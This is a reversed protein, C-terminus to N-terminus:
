FTDESPQVVKIESSRYKSNDTPTLVISSKSMTQVAGFDGLPTLSCIHALQPSLAILCYFLKLRFVKEGEGTGGSNRVVFSSGTSIFVLDDDLLQELDFIEEGSDTFARTAPEDLSVGCIHENSTVNNEM